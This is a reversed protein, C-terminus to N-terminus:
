WARGGGPSSDRLGRPACPVSAARLEQRPAHSSNTPCDDCRDDAERPTAPCGEASGLRHGFLGNQRTLRRDADGLKHLLRVWFLFKFCEPFYIAPLSSLENFFTAPIPHGPLFLSAISYGSCAGIPKIKQDLFSFPLSSEKRDADRGSPRPPISLHSVGSEGPAEGVPASRFCPRPDTQSLDAALSGM